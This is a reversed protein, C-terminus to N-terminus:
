DREDGCQQRPFQSGSLEFLSVAKLGLGPSVDRKIGLYGRGSPGKYLVFLPEIVTWLTEHIRSHTRRMRARMTM